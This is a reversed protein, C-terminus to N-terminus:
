QDSVYEIAMQMSQEILDLSEKSTTIERAKQLWQIGTAFAGGNIATTGIYFAEFHDLPPGKHAAGLDGRVM